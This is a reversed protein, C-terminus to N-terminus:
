GRYSVTKWYDLAGFGRELQATMYAECIGALQKEEEPPLSFSFIKKPEALIIYKIADLVSRGVPLSVGSAGPNCGACHIIGGNLSLMAGEPEERGCVACGYVDPEFGSLCMLRMEFVEKIHAPAYMGRALAYLSNLGLQLVEPNPSDEDTVAELAEAFYSGLALLEISSRLPLFQEITQAENISWKGRNGFLTMESYALVQSAAAFRCGRRLAGRANVTIKGEDQTLATLIKDSERYKVERLILAKTTKYM